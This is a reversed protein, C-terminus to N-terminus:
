HHRRRRRSKRKKPTKHRRRRGATAPAESPPAPAPVDAASSIVNAAAAGTAGIVLSKGVAEPPSRSIQYIGAGAVIIITGCILTLAYLGQTSNAQM